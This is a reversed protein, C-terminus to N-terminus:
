SEGVAFQEPKLVVGRVYRRTDLPVLDPSPARAPGFEAKMEYKRELLDVYLGYDLTYINYRRTANAPDLVNRQILHLVRFDVLSRLTENPENRRDFMFTRRRGKAIVEASIAALADRHERDLNTEKDTGFWTRASDRVSALDIARLNRRIADAFATAFIGMFDRVVGEGARVLERYPRKSVFLLEVLREGGVVAYERELYDRTEVDANCVEVRAPIARRHAGPGREIEASLHRFLVDAFLEETQATNRDYVFYDDLELSSSVDAGLEFGVLNNRGSPFSFVSRYELAAIKVTVNPLVFLSRKLFEALYPQLDEPIATWEDLLLYMHAVGTSSLSDSLARAIQGFLMHDIPTGQRATRSSLRASEASRASLNVFPPAGTIGASVSDATARDHVIEDQRSEDTLISRTIADALDDLPAFDVEALTPDTARDLLAAHIPEFVDKILSTARLHLPRGVDEFISNSGLTRLDLYCVVNGPLSSLLDDLVRLMHTKGTGRRGFIIQNNPNDLQESIGPDVFTATLRWADSERDARPKIRRVAGRIEADALISVEHASATGGRVRARRREERITQLERRGRATLINSGFSSSVFGARDLEELGKRIESPSLSRIRMLYKESAWGYRGLASLVDFARPSLPKTEASLRM